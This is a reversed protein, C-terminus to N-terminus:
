DRRRAAPLRMVYRAGPGDLPERTLEGGARAVLHQAVSFGLQHSEPAEPAAHQVEAQAEGPRGATVRLEIRGEPGVAELSRLLLHVLVQGALGEGCAVAPPSDVETEIKVSPPTRMQLLRVAAEAARRLDGRQEGDDARLLIRLSSLVASIREVGVRSAEVLGKTDDLLAPEHPTDPSLLLPLDAALVDLNAQLFALPNLLDHLASAALRGLSAYKQDALAEERAEELLALCLHARDAHRADLLPRGEGTRAELLERILDTCEDVM